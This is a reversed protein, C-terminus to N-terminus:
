ICINMTHNGLLESAASSSGNKWFVIIVMNKSQTKGVDRGGEIWGDM